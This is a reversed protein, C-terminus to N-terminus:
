GPRHCDEHEPVMGLCGDVRYGLTLVTLFYLGLWYGHLYAGIPAVTLGEFLFEHMPGHPCCMNRRFAWHVRFISIEKAPRIACLNRM